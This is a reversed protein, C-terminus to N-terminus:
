VAEEVEGDASLPAFVCYYTVQGAIIDQGATHYIDVSIPYFFRQETEEKASEMPQLTISGDVAGIKVRDRLSAPTVDSSYVPIINVLVTGTVSFLKTPNGSGSARGPSNPEESFVLTKEVAEFDHNVAM